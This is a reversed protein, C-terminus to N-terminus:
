EYYYGGNQYEHVREVWNLFDEYVMNTKAINCTGCCSVCNELEYGKNNDLRDIGNYIFEGNLRSKGQSNKVDMIQSPPIGCYHCNGVCLTLFEDFSLEFDLCRTKAGRRYNDYVSKANAIGKNLINKPKRGFRKCGCNRSNGCVVNNSQYERESGCICRCLWMSKRSKGIKRQPLRKILLLDGFQTGIQHKIEAL